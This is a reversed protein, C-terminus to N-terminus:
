QEGSDVIIHLFYRLDSHKKQVFEFVRTWSFLKAIHYCRSTLAKPKLYCKGAHILIFINVTSDVMSSKLDNKSNEM